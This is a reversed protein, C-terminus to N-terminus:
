KMLYESYALSHSMDFLMKANLAKSDTGLLKSLDNWFSERHHKRKIHVLEHTIVMDMYITPFLFIRPSLCIDNYVTCYGLTHKRLKKVRVSRSKLGHKLELEHLRACLVPAGIEIIRDRIEKQLWKQLKIQLFDTEKCYFITLTSEELQSIVYCDKRVIYASRCQLVIDKEDNLLYKEVIQWRVDFRQTMLRFSPNILFPLDEVTEM